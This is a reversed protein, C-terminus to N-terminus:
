MEELADVRTTIADVHGPPVLWLPALLPSAAAPVDPAGEQRAALVNRLASSLGPPYRTLSIAALDAVTAGVGGSRTGQGGKTGQGGRGLALAVTPGITAGDRLQVLAHAVVAEMEMRSLRGLLGTTVVVVGHRPDHGITLANASPDDIVLSRPRSLGAAPALGEVLNLFRAERGPDAARYPGALELVRDEAAAVRPAVFGLWSAAAVAGGLVLALIVAVVVGGLAWGVIAGVIAVGAAAAGLRAGVVAIVSRSGAPVQGGQAVVSSNPM